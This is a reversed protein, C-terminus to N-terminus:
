RGEAGCGGSRRNDATSGTHNAVGHRSSARREKEPSAPNSSQSRAAEDIGSSNDTKRREVDKAGSRRVHTRLSDTRVVIGAEKELWQRISKIGRGDEIAAKMEPWLAWIQGTKTESRKGRWDALRRRAENIWNESHHKRRSV